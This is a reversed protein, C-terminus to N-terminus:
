LAESGQSTRGWALCTKVVAPVKFVDLISCPLIGQPISGVASSRQTWEVGDQWLKEQQCRSSVPVLEWNQFWASKPATHGHVCVCVKCVCVHGPSCQLTGSFLSAMSVSLGNKSMQILNSGDNGDTHCPSSLVTSKLAEALGCLFPM